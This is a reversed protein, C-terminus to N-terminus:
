YTVEWTQWSSGYGSPVGEPVSGSAGAHATTQVASGGIQGTVSDQTPVADVHVTFDIVCQRKALEASTPALEVPGSQSDFTLEGTTRDKVTVDFVVGECATGNRGIGPDKVSFAGPDESGEPCAAGSEQSACSPTLSIETLIISEDAEFRTSTNMITLSTPVAQGVQVADPLDSSVALGVAAFAPAAVVLVALLGSLVAVSGPCVGRRVSM